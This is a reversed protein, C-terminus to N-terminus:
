CNFNLQLNIKNLEMGDVYDNIQPKDPRGSQKTARGWYSRDTKYHGIAQAPYNLVAKHFALEDLFSYYLPYLVPKFVKTYRDDIKYTQQTQHLIVIDLSLGGYIDPKNRDETFDQVLYILPYKLIASAPDQDMQFLTEILEEFYGKQYNINNILTGDELVAAENEIIQSLVQRPNKPDQMAAVVEGIIDVVYVPVISNM